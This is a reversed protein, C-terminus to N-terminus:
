LEITLTRTAKARGGAMLKQIVGDVVSLKVDIVSPSAPTMLHGQEITLFEKKINLRDYMFCALPGAAMGTASEETIGYRPAFMRTGADRGAVKTDTSFLYYGILELKESISEILEFQPDAGRVAAENKLPIILFAGGTNVVMPAVNELLDSGSLRLSSLISAADIANVQERLARYVPARQEMFAMDGEIHIERNGDITEKSTRAKGIRGIQQLYSFTAVTAHGCHAIQRNPTFFELKFDASQSPSVFATESLGVKAAIALKQQQNFQEADLVVGAANGGSEGDIFANVIQVQVRM